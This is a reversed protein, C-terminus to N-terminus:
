LNWTYYSSTPLDASVEELVISGTWSIGRGSTMTGATVSSVNAPVDLILSVATFEHTGYIVKQNNVGQASILRTDSRMGVTFFANVSDCAEVKVFVTMRVRKGAFPAVDGVDVAAGGFPHKGTPMGNWAIRAAPQGDYLVSDDYAFPFTEEWGVQHLKDPTITELMVPAAPVTPTTPEVRPVEQEPPAEDDAVCGVLVLALVMTMRSVTMM